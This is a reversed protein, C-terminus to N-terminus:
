LMNKRIQRELDLLEQKRKMGGRGSYGVMKGGSGVVRHCPILVPYPNRKMLQGVARAAHPRGAKKAVWAYTRTDGLPIKLVVNYVRRAFPTVM